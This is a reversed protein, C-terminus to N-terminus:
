RNHRVVYIMVASAAASSLFLWLWMGDSTEPPLEAENKIVVKKTYTKEEQGRYELIVHTVPDRSKRYGEPAKVEILDYRGPFLEPTVAEGNEGTTICAAKEGEGM